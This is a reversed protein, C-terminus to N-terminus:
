GGPAWGALLHFVFDVGAGLDGRVLGLEDPGIEVNVIGGVLGGSLFEADPADGVYGEEVGLAGFDVGGGSADGGGRERAFELRGESTRM